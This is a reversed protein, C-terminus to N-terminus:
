GGAFKYAEFGGEIALYPSQQLRVLVQFHKFRVFELWDIAALSKGLAIEVCRLLGSILTKDIADSILVLVQWKNAVIDLDLQISLLLM